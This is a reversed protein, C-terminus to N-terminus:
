GYWRPGTAKNADATDYPDSGEAPENASAGPGSKAQNEELTLDGGGLRRLLASTSEKLLEYIKSGSTAGFDIGEEIKRRILTITELFKPKDSLEDHPASTGPRDIKKKDSM